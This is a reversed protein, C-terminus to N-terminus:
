PRFKKQNKLRAVELDDEMKRTLGYGDLNKAARWGPLFSESEVALGAPL